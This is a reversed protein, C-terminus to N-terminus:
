TQESNLLMVWWCEESGSGSGSRTMEPPVPAVELEGRSGATETILVLRADETVPESRVTISVSFFGYSMILPQLLVRSLLM